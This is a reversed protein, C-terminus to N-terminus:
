GGGGMEVTGGGQGDRQGEVGKGDHGEERLRERGGARAERPVRACIVRNVYLDFCLYVRPFHSHKQM